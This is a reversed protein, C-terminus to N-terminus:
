HMITRGSLDTVNLQYDSKEETSFTYSLVDSTPNPYGVLEFIGGDDVRSSLVSTTFTLPASWTGTAGSSCKGKVEVKYTTNSHLGKLQYQGNSPNYNLVIVRISGTAVNTVRIRVTDMASTNGWALTASTTKINIASVSSIYGCTDITSFYAPQSYPSTYGNCITQVQWEYTTAPNLNSVMSGTSYQAGTLVKYTYASSGAPRYRIKYTQATTNYWRLTAKNTNINEARLHIPTSGCNLAAGLTKFTGTQSIYNGSSCMLEVSWNYTTAPALNSLRTSSANGALTVTNILSSNLVWFKL